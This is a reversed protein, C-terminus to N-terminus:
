ESACQTKLQAYIRQITALDAEMIEEVPKLTNGMFEGIKSALKISEYCLTMIKERNPEHKEGAAIRKDRKAIHAFSNNRIIGIGSVMAQLESVRRSIQTFDTSPFNAQLLGVLSEFNQLKPKRRDFLCDLSIIMMTLHAEHTAYFFHGYAKLVDEYPTDDIRTYLWYTHSQWAALAMRYVQQFCDELDDM